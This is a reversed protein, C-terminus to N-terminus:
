GPGEGVLPRAIRAFTPAAASLGTGGERPAELGVLVVFPPQRDLVTGVFSAYARDHGLDATGTKGAVRLGDVRALKATGLDSTVAAELMALVTRATEPRVVREPVANARTFAPVRYTGGNIIAAYGAAVQMPTAEALEGIALMAAKIGAGDSVAPINGPPEGIHFRQLTAVLRDLGLTDYIRSTGTNSSTALVDAISLLGHDSANRLEAAGYFRPACDVRAGADITGEDLAAAITFTKLTSGTVWASRSAVSPDARGGDQGEAALIAGTSADLVVVVAAAPQWQAVAHELEERAIRQVRPDLTSTAQSAPKAETARVTPPVAPSACAVLTTMWSAFLLARM